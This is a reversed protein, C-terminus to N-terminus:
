FDGWLTQMTAIAALAATETRLIRAGLVVSKFGNSTATDIETQSLGGEAGILLEIKGTPKPLEALRIAGIPNLLIRSPPLDGEGWGEGMFPSPTTALWASLSIPTAVQPIIARGSQECAAHVVSQWHALRKEARENSLKVVSRSTIIPVITTVGLEVAKQITYDMRDGSSIGQLLTINLPSENTIKVFSKVIVMVESKKISSIACTYDNGDGNFLVICDSVELRLVRTAHAAANDGLKVSTGIQLNEPNYFRLNSM